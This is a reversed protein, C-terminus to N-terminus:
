YRTDERGCFPDVPNKGKFESKGCIKDVIARIVFENNSYGNIYTKIMSVDLLMYPNAVSVFLTPVEGSFWPTNNGLGFVTHWKLRTVTKNSTNEENGVYIVLDYKKRFSEAGDLALIDSFDDPEYVYVEFGEKELCNKMTDCVRENDAGTGVLELLVRKYKDATIPLLNQTDKVLTVAQNACDEAWSVFQSNRIKDLESADPVLTGEAKKKHLKLAAKLGLIRTLAEDLRKESLIGKEYGKRMYNFDEEEDRTFLFMDCGSEIISPVMMERSMVASLGVMVTSDSVILGQFGLKERLLNQLLEPSLSAPISKAPFYQNYKRQYSPLSIAGAMVTMAGDDILGQYIKGYTDDWEECSSTNVTVVLHQDREDIGDGPFHKICTAIGCERSARSYAKAMALVRDPDNGYTRINTIPNRFNYDIDVVPAFAWNCGVISGETCSVKGLRYAYEEDETAAVEMQYGFRTGDSVIGNGGMELNAALLLPVKSNDQLFKHTERITEAKGPRYMFGGYPKRKLLDKLYEKDESFGHAVFLQGIKEDLTLSVKTKEVWAVDEDSLYFPKAKLDIM